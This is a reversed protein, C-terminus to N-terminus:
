LITMYKNAAHGNLESGYKGLPATMVVTEIFVSLTSSPHVVFEALVSSSGAVMVQVQSVLVVGFENVPQL